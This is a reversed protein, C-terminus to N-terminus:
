LPPPPYTLGVCHGGRKRSHAILAWYFRKRAVPHLNKATNGRKMPGGRSTKSGSRKHTCDIHPQRAVATDAQKILSNVRNLSYQVHM